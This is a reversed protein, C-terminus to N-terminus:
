RGLMMGMLAISLYGASSFIGERNASIIDKRAGYFIFVKLGTTALLLEYITMVLLAILLAHKAKKIFVITINVVSITAFFNWHIGWESM